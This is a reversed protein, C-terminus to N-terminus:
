LLLLNILCANNIGLTFLLTKAFCILLKTFLRKSLHFFCFLQQCKVNILMIFVVDLLKFALFTNKKLMKTKVLM